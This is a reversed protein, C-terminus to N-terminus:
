RRGSERRTIKGDWGIETAWAIAVANTKKTKKQGRRTLSFGREVEHGERQYKTFLL